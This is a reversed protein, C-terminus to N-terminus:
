KTNEYEKNIYDILTNTHDYYDDYYLVNGTGTAGIIVRLKKEKGYKEVLPNLRRWVMENIQQNSQTYEYNIEQQLRKYQEILLRQEPNGSPIMKIQRELSDLGSGLYKLRAGARAELEKKMNYGNFLQIADVIAMKKQGYYNIGWSIAVSCICILVGSIIQRKFSETM